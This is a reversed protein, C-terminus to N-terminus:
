SKHGNMSKLAACKRRYKQNFITDKPCIGITTKVKRWKNDEEDFWEDGAEIRQTPELNKYKM